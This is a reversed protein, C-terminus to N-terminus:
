ARRVSDVSGNPPPPVPVLRPPEDAPVPVLQPPEDAPVPVLQPLEGAAGPLRFWGRCSAPPAPGSLIAGKAILGPAAPM